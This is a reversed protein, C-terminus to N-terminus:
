EYRYLSNEGDAPCLVGYEQYLSERVDDPLESYSLMSNHEFRRVRRLANEREEVGWNEWLFCLTMPM